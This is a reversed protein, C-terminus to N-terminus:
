RACGSRRCTRPSSPRWARVERSALIIRTRRRVRSPPQESCTRVPSTRLGEQLAGALEGRDAAARQSTVVPAGARSHRSTLRTLSKHASRRLGSGRHVYAPERKGPTPPMVARVRQVRNLPRRDGHEFRHQPTAMPANGCPLRTDRRRGIATVQRTPLVGTRPSRRRRLLPLHANSCEDRRNTDGSEHSRARSGSPALSRAASRVPSQIRPQRHQRRARGASANNGPVNLQHSESECPSVVDEYLRNATDPAIGTALAYSELFTETSSDGVTSETSAEDEYVPHRVQCAPIVFMDAKVTGAGCIETSRLESVKVGGTVNGSELPTPASMLATDTSRSRGATPVTMRSSWTSRTGMEVPKSRVRVTEGAVSGAPAPGLVHGNREHRAVRAVRVLSIDRTTCASAPRGRRAAEPSRRPCRWRRVAGSMRAPAPRLVRVVDWRTDSRGRRRGSTCAAAASRPRSYSRIRRERVLWM